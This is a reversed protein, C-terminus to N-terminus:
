YYLLVIHEYDNYPDYQLKKKGILKLHLLQIINHHKTIINTHEEYITDLPIYPIHTRRINQRTFLFNM